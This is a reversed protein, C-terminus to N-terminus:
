KEFLDRYIQAAQEPSLFPSTVLGHIVAHRSLIQFDTLEPYIKRLKQQFKLEIEILHAKRNSNVVRWKLYFLVAEPIKEIRSRALYVYKSFPLDNKPGMEFGYFEEIFNFIASNLIESKSSGLYRYILSRSYGSKRVLDTVKWLLHGKSAELTFVFQSLSRLTSRKDSFPKTKKM